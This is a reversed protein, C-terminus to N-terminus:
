ATQLNLLRTALLGVQDRLFELSGDNVIVFDAIECKRALPLQKAIRQRALEPAIGRQELRRLQLGSETAVCLTFDFWNNLQKEFLLPVEAMFKQGRSRAFLGRWSAELRPHILDELWRLAADDAFVVGALRRRDVAGRGDLMAPGFRDRISAVVEPLTLLEERVVRDADLHIFGHPVFLAAATSKGCGMGGTIGVVLNTRSDM